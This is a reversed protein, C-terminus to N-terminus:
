SSFVSPMEGAGPKDLMPEQIIMIMIIMIM